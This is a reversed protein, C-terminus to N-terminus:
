RDAAGTRLCSQSTRLSQRVAPATQAVANSTPTGAHEPELPSLWRGAAAGDGFADLEDAALAVGARARGV